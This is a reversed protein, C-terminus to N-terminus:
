NSSQDEGGGSGDKGPIFIPTPMRRSGGISLVMNPVHYTDLSHKTLSHFPTLVQWPQAPTRLTVGQSDVM